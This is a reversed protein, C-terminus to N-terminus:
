NKAWRLLVGVDFKDCESSVGSLVATLMGELYAWCTALDCHADSVIM